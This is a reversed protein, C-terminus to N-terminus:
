VIPHFNELYEIHSYSLNKLELNIKNYDKM